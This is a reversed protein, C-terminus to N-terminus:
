LNRQVQEARDYADQVKRAAPMMLAVLVDGIAKGAARDPPDKGLLLKALNAPEAALKKLARLDEEIKDLEKQRGARSEHRLAAALRDYWRNGNRLAPAWDIMGLARLEAADPKRARGGALGELMGVGGRRILQVSDLFMFREGLDIRDAVSPWPTLG